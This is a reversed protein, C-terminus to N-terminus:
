LSEEQTAWCASLQSGSVQCLNPKETKCHAFAKECRPEFACGSGLETLAPVMGPIEKLAERQLPPNPVLHPVCTILGQTYPHSPKTLVDRVSGTEVVRGAYMVAVDNAMEAIAGMDHTILVIATGTDNQLEQLLDFIQAQVTADLATTPEDAILLRPRCALAM